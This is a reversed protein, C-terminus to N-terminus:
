SFRKRSGLAEQFDKGGRVTRFKELIDDFFGSSQVEIDM